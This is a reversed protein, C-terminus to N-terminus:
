RGDKMCVEGLVVEMGERVNSGLIETLLGNSAGLQVEVPRVLGGDKVLLHRNVKRERWLKAARRTRTPDAQSLTKEGAPQGFADILATTQIEQSTPSELADNAILLVNRHREIEFQLSASMEPLVSDFHDAAVVVTYMIADQQKAPNMRVQAVKGEFSRDLCANITFRVPQGSHICGIDSEDVSAWIQMQRSNKAILFLGPANFAAVVTQGVNVRRDLIVGDCPSKITTYGLNTKNIRLTAESEQVAAEWVAVNAEAMRFNTVALDFDTDAIASVRRLGEARKWEQETQGLRARCQLLNAKAKLLSADAYDVQAQYITPDIQALVMGNRVPSGCDLTKSPDTPDAGFSAILGTVQAGVEVQDLKVTGKASITHSLDGRQVKATRVEPIPEATNQVVFYAAGALALEVVVFSILMTKM